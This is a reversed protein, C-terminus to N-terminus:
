VNRNKTASHDSSYEAAAGLKNPINGTYLQSSLTHPLLHELIYVNLAHESHTEYEAGGRRSNEALVEQLGECASRIRVTKGLM